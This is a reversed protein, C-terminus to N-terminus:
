QEIRASTRSFEGVEFRDAREERRAWSAGTGAAMWFRCWAIRGRAAAGAPLEGM